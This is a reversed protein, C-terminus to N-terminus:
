SNVWSSLGGGSRLCGNMAHPTDCAADLMVGAFSSNENLFGDTIAAGTKKDLCLSLLYICTISLNIM